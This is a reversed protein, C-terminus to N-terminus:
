PCAGGCTSDSCYQVTVAYDNCSAAGGVGSMQFWIQLDDTAACTGGWSVCIYGTTVSQWM